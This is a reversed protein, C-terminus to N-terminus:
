KLLCENECDSDDAGDQSSRLYRDQRTRFDTIVEILKRVTVRSAISLSGGCLTCQFAISSAGAINQHLLARVSEDAGVASDVFQAINCILVAELRDSIEQRDFCWCQFNNNLCLMGTHFHNSLNLSSKIIKIFEIAELVSSETWGFLDNHRQKLDM